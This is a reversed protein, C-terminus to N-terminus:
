KSENINQGKGYKDINEELILNILDSKSFYKYKEVKLLTEIKKLVRETTRMSIKETRNKMEV